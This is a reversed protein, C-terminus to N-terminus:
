ERIKIQGGVKSLRVSTPLKTGPNYPELKTNKGPYYVGTNNDTKIKEKLRRQYKRGREPRRKDNPDRTETIEFTRVDVGDLDFEINQNMKDTEEPQDEDAPSEEPQDDDSNSAYMQDFDETFGPPPNCYLLKGDVFDQLIIKGARAQDPVGHRTMFGRIYGYASLLEESTPPRNPDENSAPHPLKLSYFSELIHKPIKRCIFSVPGHIDKIEAIRILGSCVMEEKTSMFTPFVLGPCDCLTIPLDPLLLTQLHKTKGPTKSVSVRKQEMLFNIISSKGVNPYGVMGVMYRSNTETNINPGIKKCSEIFLNLLEARSYIRIV